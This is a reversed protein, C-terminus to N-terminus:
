PLYVPALGPQDTLACQARHVRGQASAFGPIGKRAAVIAGRGVDRLPRVRRVDARPTARVPM